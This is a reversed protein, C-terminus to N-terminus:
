TTEKLEALAATLTEIAHSLEGANSALDPPLEEQTRLEDVEAQLADRLVTLRQVLESRTM